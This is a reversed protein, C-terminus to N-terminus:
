LDDVPSKVSRDGRHFMHTYTMITKVNKHGLLEQVTRVDCGSELFQTAFSHRFTHCTALIVEGALDGIERGIGCRYFFLLASLAQNQASARVKEKVALHTLLANIRPEATETRRRRNHLSIFQKVRYCCAEETRRSHHRARLAERVRDPLNPTDAPPTERAARPTVAQLAPVGSLSETECRRLMRVGRYIDSIIDGDTPHTLLAEWSVPKM